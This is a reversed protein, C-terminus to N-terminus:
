GSEKTMPTWPCTDYPLWGGGCEPENGSLPDEDAEAGGVQVDSCVGDEAVVSTAETEDSDDRHCHDGSRRNVEYLTRLNEESFQLRLAEDKGAFALGHHRALYGDRYGVNYVRDIQEDADVLSDGIEGTLYRAIMQGAVAGATLVLFNKLVKSVQM